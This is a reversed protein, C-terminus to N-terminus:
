VAVHVSLVSDLRRRACGAAGMGSIVYKDYSMSPKVVEMKPNEWVGFYIDETKWAPLVYVMTGDGIDVQPINNFAVIKVQLLQNVLGDKLMQFGNEKSMFVPDESLSWLMHPTVALNIMEGPNLAYRTQLAEMIAFIKGRTLGSMAPTGTRVYNAPIVNTTELDINKGDYDDYSTALEGGKLMPMIPMTEATVLNEGTYCPGLIGGLGKGNYFSTKPDISSEPQAITWIKRVDDWVSGLVIQDLKRAFSNSIEEIFQPTEVSFDGRLHRDDESFQLAHRFGVPLMARKGYALEEPKKEEFRQERWDAETKGRSNFEMRKGRCGSLHTVLGTLRSTKQQLATDLVPSYTDRYMQQYTLNNEMDGHNWVPTYFALQVSSADDTCCLM